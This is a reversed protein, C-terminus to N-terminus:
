DFGWDTKWSIPLEFGAFAAVNSWIGIHMCEHQILVHTYESFTLNVGFFNLKFKQIDENSFCKLVQHLEADKKELNSKIDAKSLTGSYHSHKKSFILQMIELDM